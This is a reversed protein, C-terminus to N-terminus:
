SIEGPPRLESAREVPRRDALYGDPRVLWAAEDGYPTGAGVEAVPLDSEVARGAVVLFDSGIRDRLRGGPGFHVDPAVTGLRPARRDAPDGIAYRAPEALRGANVRRRFWSSRPAM